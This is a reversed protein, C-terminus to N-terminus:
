KLEGQEGALHYPLGYDVVRIYNLRSWDVFPYVTVRDDSISSVTGVPLAPPFYGGAGSTVVREGVVVSEPNSVYLLDLRNTNNGALIAKQQSRELIVPIRSNIDSILLVRASHQGVKEVRGVLGDGTVAALGARVDQEQGANILVSRVFVSRVDGVVRATMFSMAREPVFNLMNRLRSNESQLKQVQDELNLLRDKEARLKENETKLYTWSDVADATYGVFDVPMALVEMVPVIMDQVEVRMYQVARVQFSDLVMLLLSSLLLFFFSIRHFLFHRQFRLGRKKVFSGRHKM